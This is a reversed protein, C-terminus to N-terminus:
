DQCKDSIDMGAWISYKNCHVYPLFVLKHFKRAQLKGFVIALGTKFITEFDLFGWVLKLAEQNEKPPLFTWFDIKLRINM